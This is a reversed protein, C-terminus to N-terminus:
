GGAVWKLLGASLLAGYTGVVYGLVALLVGVAALSPHFASAVIPASAAGGINAQSGVAMFFIPARVVKMVISILIIHISIWVIGMAFLYPYQVIERLDASAGIVGILLYLFVTGFKSAGVGELSRLPTFSLLLGATTIFIIMWTSHSIIDGIEPLVNGLQTCIWTVGFTLAFLVMFDKTTGVRSVQMQFKTVKAKLEEIISNDAGLKRDIEQYRGAFYFLFAVWINSVAVDVVVMMGIMTETAGVAQGVALFNAGGGIWSGTMAAMGKWIDPPLKDQFLYLSIPGGIMVGLTGAFFLAIARPGLKLISKVDVSITLLFLAAPLVLAKITTYVPAQSPIIDLMTLATPIFYAFVLAPIIKFFKSATPHRELSFLIAPIILLIAFLGIPDQILTNNMTIERKGM